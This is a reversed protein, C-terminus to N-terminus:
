REEEHGEKEGGAAGGARGARLLRGRGGGNRDGDGWLGGVDAGTIGGSKGGGDGARLVGRDGPEDVFGGAAGRREAGDIGCAIVGGGGSKGIGGRDGDFGDAGGIGGLVAGAGDGQHVGRRDECADRGDGGIKAIETEGEGAGIEDGACLYEEARGGEGGREDGGCLEGGGAVGGGSAVKGDGHLIGIGAATGGGGLIEGHVAGLLGGIARLHGDSLAGAEVTKEWEGGVIEPVFVDGGGVDIGVGGVVDVVDAGGNAEMGIETGTFVVAGVHADGVGDDIGGLSENGDGVGGVTTFAVRAGHGDRESSGDLAIGIRAGAIAMDEDEVVGVAEEIFEVTGIRM